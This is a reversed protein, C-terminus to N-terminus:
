HNTEESRETLREGSGETEQKRRKRKEKGQGEKRVEHSCHIDTTSM